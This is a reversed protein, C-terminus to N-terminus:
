AVYARATGVPATAYLRVAILDAYPVPTVSAARMLGALMLMMLTLAGMQMFVLLLVGLVITSWGPTTHNTLKMGVAIVSGAVACSAVGTCAIGMRVLVSESFVMVARFGHLVLSVFNMKSSGDYRSHRDIACPAMRLKSAIVCGPLHIWLESMSVIRLLAAPKLAIFNGFAIRRGVLLSFMRKYFWYAV